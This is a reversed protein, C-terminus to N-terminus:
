RSIRSMVYHFVIRLAAGSSQGKGLSYDTYRIEVPVEEFPLHTLRILDILESAHAMRDATITIRQAAEQSFCRLGNHADTVPMRNVLRTFWVGLRLMCRRTWPLNVARRGLFRSGLTIACRGEAIPQILRAIDEPRHQGDADFTVIYEAGQQLAYEIGTQLSAGQGRNVVHRLVHRAASRAAEFTGDSSGDDVVVVNPWHAQVDGVVQGIVDEENFAAIVIFVQDRLASPITASDGEGAQTTASTTSL